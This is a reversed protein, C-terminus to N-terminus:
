RLETGAIRRLEEEIDTGANQGAPSAQIELLQQQAAAPTIASDLPPIQTAPRVAPAPRREQQAGGDDPFGPRTNPGSGAGGGTGPGPSPITTGGGDTPPEEPARLGLGAEIQGESVLQGLASGAVPLVEDSVDKFEEALATQQERAVEEQVQQSTEAGRETQQSASEVLSTAEEFTVGTLESLTEALTAVDTVGTTAAEEQAIVTEAGAQGAEIAALLQERRRTEEQLGITAASEAARNILDQQLLAATTNDFGGSQALVNSVAPAGSRLVRAIAADQAAAVDTPAGLEATLAELAEQTGPAGRVVQQETVVEQLQEQREQQSVQQQEAQQQEFAQQSVQQQKVEEVNSIFTEFLTSQETTLTSEIENLLEQIGSTRTSVEAIDKNARNTDRVDKSGFISGFIDGILGM